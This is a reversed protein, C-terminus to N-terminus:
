LLCKLIEQKKESVFISSGEGSLYSIESMPAAGTEGKLRGKLKNILRIHGAFQGEENVYFQSRFHKKWNIIVFWGDELQLCGQSKEFIDIKWRDFCFERVKGQGQLIKERVTEQGTAVRYTRIVHYCSKIGREVIIPRIRPSSTQDYFM